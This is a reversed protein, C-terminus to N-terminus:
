NRYFIRNIYDVDMRPYFQRHLYRFITQDCYGEPYEPLEDCLRIIGEKYNNNPDTHLIAEEFVERVFDTLGIFGGANLYRGGKPAVTKTWEFVEPILQFRRKSSTSCFVLDAPHEKFIDIVVQPDDKLVCDPADCYLIYKTSLSM